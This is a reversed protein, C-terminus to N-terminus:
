LTGWCLWDFLSLFNQMNKASNRSRSHHQHHQNPFTFVHCLGYMIKRVWRNPHNLLYLDYKWNTHVHMGWVTKILVGFFWTEVLGLYLLALTFWSNPLAMLWGWGAVASQTVSLEGRGDNGGILHHARHAERYFAHIKALLFNKPTKKHAFNHGLGHLFEDILLFAVLSFLFYQSEFDRLMNHREPLVENMVFFVVTVLLPKEVLALGAASLGFMKWDAKTKKGGRYKGTLWEYMVLFAMISMSIMGFLNPLSIGLEEINM